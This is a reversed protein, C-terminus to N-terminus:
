SITGADAAILVDQRNLSDVLRQLEELIVEQLDLAEARSKLVMDVERRRCWPPFAGTEPDGAPFTELDTPSCVGNYKVAPDETSTIPDQLYRFVESPMDVANTITIKFRFGTDRGVTYNKQHEFLYELRRTGSEASASSSSSDPSMSASSSESM